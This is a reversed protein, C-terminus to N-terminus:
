IVDALEGFTHKIAGMKELCYEQYAFVNGCISNVANTSSLHLMNFNINDIMPPNFSRTPASRLIGPNIVRTM